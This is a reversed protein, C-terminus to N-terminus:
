AADAVDVTTDSELWRAADDRDFMITKGDLVFTGIKGDGDQRGHTPADASSDNNPNRMPQDSRGALHRPRHPVERGPEPDWGVNCIDSLLM